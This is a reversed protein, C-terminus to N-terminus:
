RRPDHDGPDPDVNAQRRVDVVTRPEIVAVVVRDRDGAMARRVAVREQVQRFKSVPVDDAHTPAREDYSSRRDNTGRLDPHEAETAENQGRTM